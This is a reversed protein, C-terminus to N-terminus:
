FAAGGLGEASGKMSQENFDVRTKWAKSELELKDWVFLGQRLRDQKADLEARLKEEEAKLKKYHPELDRTVGLSIPLSGPDIKGGPVIPPLTGLLSQALTPRAGGGHQAAPGTPPNFPKSVASPTTPM